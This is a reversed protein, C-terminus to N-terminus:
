QPYNVLLPGQMSSNFSRIMWLRHAVDLHQFGYISSGFEVNRLDIGAAQRYCVLNHRSPSPLVTSIPPRRARLAGGLARDALAVPALFPLDVAREARLRHLHRPRAQDAAVALGAFPPRLRAIMGNFGGRGPQMKGLDPWLPPPEPQTSSPPTSIHLLRAARAPSSTLPRIPARSSRPKARTSRNRSELADTELRTWPVPLIVM